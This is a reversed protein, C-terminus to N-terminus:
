TEFLFATWANLLLDLGTTEAIHILERYRKSAAQEGEYYQRRGNELISTGQASSISKWPKEGYTFTIVDEAFQVAAARQTEDLHHNFNQLLFAVDLIHTSHGKFPGDWPNPESFQMLFVDGPIRKALARAAAEHGIDSGFQLVNLLATENDVDPSIEYSKLLKQAAENHQSLTAHLHNTFDVAICKRAAFLGM